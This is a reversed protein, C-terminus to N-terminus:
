GALRYDVLMLVATRGEEGERTKARTDAGRSLLLKFVDAHGRLAAWHLATLGASDGANVDAGANLATIVGAADSNRAAYRQPYHKYIGKCLFPYYFSRNLYGKLHSYCESLIKIILYRFM